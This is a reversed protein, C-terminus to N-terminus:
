PTGNCHAKQAKIVDGGRAAAAAEASAETSGTGTAGTNTMAICGAGALRVIVKCPATAGNTRCQDLAAADAGAQSNNNTDFGWSVGQSDIELAGAGYCNPLSCDAHAPVAVVTAASGLFVVAAAIMMLTKM